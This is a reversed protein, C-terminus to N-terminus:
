AGRIAKLVKFRKGDRVTEVNGFRERIVNEYPLTRNAVLLLSGGAHLVSWADDIFQRPVELATQKGIHFPPNSIVLEFRQDLVTSAIDSVEARANAASAQAATETACMVAESDDDLMLVEASPLLRAAFVGLSGAGCGLDLVSSASHLARAEHLVDMLDASAEDLHEWSFVGPRTQMAFHVGHREVEVSRFAVRGGKEEKLFQSASAIPPAPVLTPRVGSFMRAGARQMEMRIAGCYHELQQAASKAGEDNFGAVFCRGGPKLVCMAEYLLQEMSSKSPTVRVTVRDAVLGDPLPRTGQGLRVMVNALGNLSITRSCAEASLGSRDTMWVTSAGGLSAAAGVMGNGAALCVVTEGSANRTSAALMDAAVDTSGHGFVGPKTAVLLDRGGLPTRATQWHRYSVLSAAHRDAM